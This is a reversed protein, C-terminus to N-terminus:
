GQRQEYQNKHELREIMSRIEKIDTDQFGNDGIINVMLNCFTKINEKLQGQAKNCGHCLLCRVKGTTHNHDM